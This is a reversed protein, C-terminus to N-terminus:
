LRDGPSLRRHTDRARQQAAVAGYRRMIKPDRWRGLSMVAEDSAGNSKLDHAFSHRFTHPHVHKTLGAQKARRILTTALGDDGLPGKGGLWLLSTEKAKPHTRRVRLYRDLDRAAKNGFYVTGVHNGKGTVIAQQERLDVDEICMGLLEARRVGTDVLFRIIATDRRDLFDRGKCVNLLATLEDTTLIETTQEDVIPPKLKALPTRTIEEEAELFNFFRRLSAFHLYIGAQMYQRDERLYILFDQVDTRSIDSPVTSRDMSSLWNVFATAARKYAVLTGASRHEARLEREFSEWLDWWAESGAARTKSM